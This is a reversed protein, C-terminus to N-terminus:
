IFARCSAATSSIPSCAARRRDAAAPRHRRRAPRSLRRGRPLARRRARALADVGRRRHDLDYDNSLPWDEDRKFGGENPSYGLARHITVADHGTLDRMRRAAKGTPACLLVRRRARRASRSWRASRTRRAPAPFGPSSCSRGRACSSSSRGSSTRCTSREPADPEEFLEVPARAPGSASLCCRLASWRGSSSAISGSARSSSRRGRVRAARVASELPDLEGVGLLRAPASGCSRCAAPVHQRGVGGGRARLASRGAAAASRRARRRALARDRGRDQLRGAAARDAPVSRADLM